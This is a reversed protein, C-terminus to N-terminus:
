PYTFQWISVRASDDDIAIRAAHAGVDEPQLVFTAELPGNGVHEFLDVLDKGSAQVRTPSPVVQQLTLTDLYERDIAIRVSGPPPQGVKVRIETEAGHRVFREYEVELGKGGRVEVSSLPGAGVWGALGAVILLGLLTWGLLQARWNWQQFIPDEEIDPRHAQKSPVDPDRAVRPHRGVAPGADVIHMARGARSEAVNVNCRGSRQM